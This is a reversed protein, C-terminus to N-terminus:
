QWATMLQITKRRYMKSMGNQAASALPETSITGEDAEDDDEDSENAASGMYEGTEYGVANLTVMHEKQSAHREGAKLKLKSRDANSRKERLKKWTEQEKLMFEVADAPIDVGMESLVILKWLPGLNKHCIAMNTKCGYHAHKLGIRKSYYRLAMCHFGEISNTTVKGNPIVYEQPRDAMSILLKKFAEGQVPM